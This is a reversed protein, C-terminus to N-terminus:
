GRLLSFIQMNFTDKYNIILMTQPLKIPRNVLSSKYGLDKM